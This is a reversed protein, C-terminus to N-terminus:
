TDVGSIHDYTRLFSKVSETKDSGGFEAYVNEVYQCSYVVSDPQSYTYQSADLTGKKLTAWDQEVYGPRMAVTVWDDSGEVFYYVFMTVVDSSSPDTSSVTALSGYKHLFTTLDTGRFIPMDPSDAQPM